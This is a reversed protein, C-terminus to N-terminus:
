VEDEASWFGLPCESKALRTKTTIKCGCATCINKYRLECTECIKRRADTNASSAYIVRGMILDKIYAVFTYSNSMLIHSLHVLRHYKGTTYM